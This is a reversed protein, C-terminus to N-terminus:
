PIQVGGVAQTGAHGVIRKGEDTLYCLLRGRQSKKDFSILGFDKLRHVRRRLARHSRYNSDFDLRAVILAVPCGPQGGIEELLRKDIQDLEPM